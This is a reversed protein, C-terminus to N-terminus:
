FDDRQNQVHRLEQFHRSVTGLPSLTKFSLLSQIEFDAWVYLIGAFNVYM